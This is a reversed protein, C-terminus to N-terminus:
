ADPTTYDTDLGNVHPIMIQCWEPVVIKLILDEM